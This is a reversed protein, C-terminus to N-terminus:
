KEVGREKMDKYMKEWRAEDAPRVPKKDLLKAASWTKGRDKSAVRYMRYEYKDKFVMDLMSPIEAGLFVVYVRSGSQVPYPDRMTLPMEGTTVTEWTVGCDSSVAFFLVSSKDGSVWSAMVSGDKGPALSRDRGERLEASYTWTAGDDKSTFIKGDMEM